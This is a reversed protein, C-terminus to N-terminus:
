KASTIPLCINFHLPASANTGQAQNLQQQTVVIHTPPALSLSGQLVIYTHNPLYKIMLKSNITTTYVLTVSNNILLFFFLSEIRLWMSVSTTDRDFM